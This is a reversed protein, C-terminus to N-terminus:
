KLNLGHKKLLGYVRSHGLGSVSEIKKIDGNTLSILRNFYEEEAEELIRQRFSKWEPVEELHSFPLEKCFCAKQEEEKNVNRRTLAIRVQNPLHKRYLVPENIASSIAQELTNVLERVNGPWNYDRLIELFDSHIRKTKIDLKKCINATYFHTIEEIDSQRERLPPIHIQATRLRYLLDERFEKGQVMTDLDRNTASILRFDSDLEEQSGLPRFRKEQLVRLFKKQIGLPLEGVEDLFLNGQDAQQILGTHNSQAGTFAGKRHGFLTSEALSENIAACDVVVFDQKSRGSNLHLARAFLEKGTGTEGTILVNGEMDVADSLQNLCSEMEPSSGIIGERKLITPKKKSKLHLDRYELARTLPLTVKNLSLPKEIYDWAGEKLALEAGDPDGEGTIIIVEPSNNLAVLRPLIDLGNGDPLCVDLLIADFNYNEAKHLGQELTLSFDGQHGVHSVIQTLMECVNEEDDIILIKSM